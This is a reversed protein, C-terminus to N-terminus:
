KIGKYITEIRKSISQWDYNEKLDDIANSCLENTQNKLFKENILNALETTNKEIDYQPKIKISSDNKPFVEMGSIDYCAIPINNMSAEFLSHSGGEKISCFLFLDAEELYKNITQHSVKGLFCISNNSQNIKQLKPKEPGDGLISLMLKNDNMKNLKNFVDIVQDINKTDIIRATTIIHKLERDKKKTNILSTDIGTELFVETKSMFSNNILRQTEYTRLIIKSCKKFTLYYIPNVKATFNIFKHINSKIKTKFSSKKMLNYDVISGGGMPGIVLKSKLLFLFQPLHINGFTVYHVIDDKKVIKKLYKYVSIQWFLYYFYSFRGKPKFKMGLENEIFTFNINNTNEQEVLKKNSIRTIVELNCKDYLTNALKWGVQHEGGQDPECGYAVLYTNM